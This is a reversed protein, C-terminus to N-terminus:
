SADLVWGLMVARSMGVRRRDAGLYARKKEPYWSNSWATCDYHNALSLDLGLCYALRLLMSYSSSCFIFGLLVSGLM